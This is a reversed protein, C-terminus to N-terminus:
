KVILKNGAIRIVVVKSDKYYTQNHEALAAWEEQKVRVYGGKYPEIIKTVIAEQGILAEVNTKYKQPGRLTIFKKLLGFSAVTILPIAWLQYFFSIDFFACIAAAFCGVSLSVFFLLGPTGVELILFAIGTALWVYMLISNYEEM